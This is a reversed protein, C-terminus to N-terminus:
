AATHTRATEPLYRSLLEALADRRVPKALYDNMGAALCHARDGALANATLAVVVIGSAPSGLARIRRTAEFGDCVPM